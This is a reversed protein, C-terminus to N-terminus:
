KWKLCIWLCFAICKLMLLGAKDLAPITSSDKALHFSCCKNMFNQVISAGITNENKLHCIKAQRKSARLSFLFLWCFFALLLLAMMNSTDAVHLCAERNEGWSADTAWSKCCRASAGLLRAWVGDTRNLTWSLVALCWLSFYCGVKVSVTSNIMAQSPEPMWPYIKWNSTLVWWPMRMHEHTIYYYTFCVPFSEFEIRHLWSVEM